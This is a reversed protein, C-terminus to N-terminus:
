NLYSVLFDELNGYRVVQIGARDYAQRYEEMARDYAVANKMLDKPDFAEMIKPDPTDVEAAIDDLMYQLSTLNMFSAYVDGREAAEYMKNRWNSFMEEYTGRINDPSPAAKPEAVIEVQADEVSFDVSSEMPFAMSLYEGVAQMVKGLAEKIASIEERMVVGLLLEKMDFPLNLGAVEEFTRKVGRRFYTGNYLMVANLTYLIVDSAITRLDSLNQLKMCQLCSESAQLFAAQAMEVRTQSSLITRAKERLKELRQPATRDKVYLIQSDMLKSLNAHECNAEEELAEWTTCYLDYGIQSDDLIFGRALQWGRDDNILIMLDLDSKEYTDGTATSGYVGILALSDPCIRESKEIIADIIAKNVQKQM